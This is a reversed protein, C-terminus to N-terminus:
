PGHKASRSVRDLEPDIKLNARIPSTSRGLGTISYSYAALPPNRNRAYRLLGRALAGEIAGYRALPKRHNPAVLMLMARHDWNIKTLLRRHAAASFDAL